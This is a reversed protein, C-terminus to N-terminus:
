SFVLFVNPVANNGQFLQKELQKKEEMSFILM